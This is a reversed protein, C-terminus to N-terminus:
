QAGVGNLAALACGLAAISIGFALLALVVGIRCHWSM